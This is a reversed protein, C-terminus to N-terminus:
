RTKKSKKKKKKKLFEDIRQKQKLALRERKKRSLRKKKKEKKNPDKLSDSRVPKIPLPKAAKKKEELKLKAEEAAKRAGSEIRLRTQEQEYKYDQSFILKLKSKTRDKWAGSKKLKGVLGLLATVTIHQQQSAGKKFIKKAWIRLSKWKNDKLPPPEMVSAYIIAHGKRPVRQEKINGPYTEKTSEKAIKVLWPKNAAEPYNYVQNRRKLLFDVPYDDPVEFCARLWNEHRSEYPFKKSRVGACGHYPSDSGNKMGDFVYGCTPNDIFEEFQLKKGEYYWIRKKPLKHLPSNKNRVIVHFFPKTAKEKCEELTGAHWVPGSNRSLEWKKTEENKIIFFSNGHLTDARWIGDPGKLWKLRIAKM